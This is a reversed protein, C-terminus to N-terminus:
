FKFKDTMNMLSSNDIKGLSGSLENIILQNNSIKIDGNINEIPEEIPDLFTIGNQIIMRGERIPNALTGTVDIKLSYSNLSDELIYTSSLSDLIDFYPPLFDINNTLGTLLFDIERDSIDISHLEISNFDTLSSLKKHCLDLNEQNADVLKM